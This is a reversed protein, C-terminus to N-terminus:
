ASDARKYTVLHKFRLRFRDKVREHYIRINRKIVAGARRRKCRQFFWKLRWGCCVWIQSRHELHLRADAIECFEEM